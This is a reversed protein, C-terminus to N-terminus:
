KDGTRGGEGKGREVYGGSWLTFLDCEARFRSLREHTGKGPCMGVKDQLYWLIDHAEGVRSQLSHDQLHARERGGERVYYIFLRKISVNKRKM